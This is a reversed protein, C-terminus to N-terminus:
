INLNSGSKGGWGIIEGEPAIAKAVLQRVAHDLEESKKHAGRRLALAADPASQEGLHATPKARRNRTICIAALM